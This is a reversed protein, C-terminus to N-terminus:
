ENVISSSRASFKELLKRVAIDQFDSSSRALKM